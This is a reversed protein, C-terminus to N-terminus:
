AKLFDAITKALYGIYSFGTTFYQQESHYTPEVIHHMGELTQQMYRGGRLFFQAPYLPYTSKTILDMLEDQGGTLFQMGVINTSLIPWFVPAGYLVVNLKLGFSEFLQSASALLAQGAGSHAIMNITDGVKIVGTAIDTAIASYIKNVNASLQSFTSTLFTDTLFEGAGSLQNTGEFLAIGSAGSIGFQSLREILRNVYEPVQGTVNPNNIGNLM